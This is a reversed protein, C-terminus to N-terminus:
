ESAALLLPGHVAEEYRDCRADARAIKVMIWQAHADYWKRYSAGARSMRHTNLQTCANALALLMM